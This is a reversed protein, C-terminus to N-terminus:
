IITAIQDIKNSDNRPESTCIPNRENESSFPKAFAIFQFSHVHSILLTFKSVCHFNKLSMYMCITINLIESLVVCLNM